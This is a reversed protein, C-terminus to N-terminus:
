TGPVSAVRYGTGNDDEVEEYFVNDPSVYYKKNNLTVKRCDAPLQHLVDGVKLTIAPKETNDTQTGNTNASPNNGPNDMTTENDNTPQDNANETNLVGDRGVVVYVTKGNADDSQQYYVGSAEYYQVGDIMISRANSPLSPVAAGLPPTTVQYGGNYPRYFVGGYYYYPNSDWYFPYYGFPLFGFYLGLHPYGWGWGYHYFGGGYGYGGRYYNRGGYGYGGRYYTRGGYVYSGGRGAYARAGFGGRVGVAGRVAYNGRVGVAGRVAYNSRTIAGSRVGFGSRGAVSGRFGGGSNVAGHFGGGGGGGHFGGGGSHGGRQAYVQGGIAMTLLVSLTIASMYKILSKM